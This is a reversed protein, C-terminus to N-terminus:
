TRVFHTGGDLGLAFNLCVHLVNVFCHQQMSQEKCVLKNEGRKWNNREKKRKTNKSMMMKWQSNFQLITDFNTDKQLQLLHTSEKRQFFFSFFPKLVWEMTKVGDHTLLWDFPAFFNKVFVYQMSCFDNCYKKKSEFNNM